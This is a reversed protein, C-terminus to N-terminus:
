AGGREAVEAELRPRLEDQFFRMFGAQDPGVQSIYIEDFGADLYTRLTSLHREPDPGCPMKGAVQDETVLSAAQEFHAPMPLEQNLEGPVLSSAWLEHALRRAAQEDENWCVKVGAAAPGRGKARWQEMLEEDPSTTVWADGHSLVLEMAKPGFASIAVPIPEDPLTYIRAGEATFHEGHWDVQEGTWLKRMLEIAEALRARRVDAPPWREGTVHENLAEGTGVGLTFRGPLMAASTAAAQAVIVPHLRFTPCTVATTVRLGTTAAIGGVVNWVFPSHGQRDLWPHFHDSVWVSRFGHDEAMRAIEVLTTGDHEESSLFYGFETM